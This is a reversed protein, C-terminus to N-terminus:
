GNAVASHFVSRKPTETDFQIDSQQDYYVYDVIQMSISGFQAGAGMTTWLLLRGVAHISTLRSSTSFMDLTNFKRKYIHVITNDMALPGGAVAMADAAPLHAIGGHSQSNNLVRFSRRLASLPPTAIAGNTVQRQQICTFVSHSSTPSSPAPPAAIPRPKARYSVNRKFAFFKNSTADYEFRGIRHGSCTGVCGYSCARSSSSSPAAARARDRAQREAYTLLFDDDNADSM